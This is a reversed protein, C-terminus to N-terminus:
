GRTATMVHHRLKGGLRIMISRKESKPVESVYIRGLDGGKSILIHDAKEEFKWVVNQPSGGHKYIVNVNGNAMFTIRGEIENSKFSYEKGYELIDSEPEPEEKAIEERGGQKAILKEILSRIDRAESREGKDRYKKALRRLSEITKAREDSIKKALEERKSKEYADTEDVLRKAELADGMDKGQAQANLSTLALSLSLASLSFFRLGFCCLVGSPKSFFTHVLNM